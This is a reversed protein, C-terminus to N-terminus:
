AGSQQGPRPPTFMMSFWFIIQGSFLSYAYALHAEIKSIFKCLLTSLSSPSIHWRGYRFHFSILCLIAAMRCPFMLILTFRWLFWDRFRMLSALLMIIFRRSLMLPWFSRRSFSLKLPTDHWLGWFYLFSIDNLQPKATFIIVLNLQYLGAYHTATDHCPLTSHPVPWSGM